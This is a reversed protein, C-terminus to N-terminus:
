DEEEALWKKLKGMADHMRGLATNLPIDLTAAIENFTLDGQVRMLFVERQVEPLMMVAQMVRQAMDDLEVRETPGAETAALREVLPNDEADAVADLSITPKSKRRFDILLNRAIKWLWARFSVDKFRAAHRIVRFWVEQFLDEADARNATMGLLWAFLPQRYRDVLKDLATTDGQAFAQLLEADSIDPEPMTAKMSSFSLRQSKNAFIKNNQEFRDLLFNDNSMILMILMILM